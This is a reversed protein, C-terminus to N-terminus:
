NFMSLHRLHQKLRKSKLGSSNVTVDRAMPKRLIILCLNSLIKM